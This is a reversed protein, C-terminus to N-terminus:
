AIELIVYESEGKPAAVKVAEGKKRGIFARGLPSEHSIKGSAPDAEQSSGVIVYNERVEIKSNISVVISSGIGVATNSSNKTVITARSLLDEIERIRMENLMQEEKAADFEANESLDGLSKAYELREAIRLREKLKLNELETQLKLYGEESMYEVDDNRRDHDLEDRDGAVTMDNRSNQSQM